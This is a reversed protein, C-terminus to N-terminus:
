LIAAPQRRRGFTQRAVSRTNSSALPDFIPDLRLEQVSWGGHCSLVYEIEGLAVDYEGVMTYIVALDWVLHPGDLADRSIAYLEVARKGEHIAEGKRGLGAYAVGLAAHVRHDNLRANLWQLSPTISFNRALQFRYFFETTYQVRLGAQSPQGLKRAVGHRGIAGSFRARDGEM